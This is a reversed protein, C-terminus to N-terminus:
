KNAVRLQLTPVIGADSGTQLQYYVDLGGGVRSCVARPDTYAEHLIRIVSFESFEDASLVYDGSICYGATSVPSCQPRSDLESM